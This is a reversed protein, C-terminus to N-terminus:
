AAPRLVVVTSRTYVGGGRYGSCTVLVLRPPGTPALLGPRWGSFPVQRVSAVRYPCGSVDARAGLPVDALDGFEGGTGAVTHGTLLTAGRRACAPRGWWGLVSADAPPTLVGGVPRVPVV